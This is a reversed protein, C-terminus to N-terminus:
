AARELPTSLRTVATTFITPDQEIGVFRRGSNLCALGTSGSGMCNDLVTDGPDTYTRILYELLAVPKQTDHVASRQKDSAFRLVSRPFRETSDYKIPEFTQAGYVATSDGRKTATKRVHGQTKQPNYTPQRRYFVLINEHAKLPARNANLHGTAHTKEWIWEYRLSGLCSSGLIKDFPPQAFLVIAGSCVRWYQEWLPQLPIISDWGCRTTGYPLDALVLDVSQDPLTPLVALCDGHILRPEKM